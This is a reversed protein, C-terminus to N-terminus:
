IYLLWRRVDPKIAGALGASKLLSVLLDMVQDYWDAVEQLKLRNFQKGDYRANRSREELSRYSSTIPMLDSQSFMWSNAEVHRIFTRGRQHALARLFLCAVYYALTGKWGSVDTAPTTSEATRSVFTLVLFHHEGTKICAQCM